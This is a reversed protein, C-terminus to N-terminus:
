KNIIEEVDGLWNAVLHRHCFSDPKEYCILAINDGFKSLDEIVKNRDLKSLIENNYRETYKIEDPNSKYENLISSSPGLPAYYFGNWFSSRYATIAVPIIDKPLKKVYGFYSTYIKVM